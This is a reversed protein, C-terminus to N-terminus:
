FGMGFKPRLWHFTGSSKSKPETKPVNRQQPVSISNEGDEMTPPMRDENEGDNGTKITPELDSLIELSVNDHNSGQNQPNQEFNSDVIVLTFDDNKNNGQDKNYAM